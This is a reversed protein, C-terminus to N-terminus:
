AIKYDRSLHGHQQLGIQGLLYYHLLSIITVAVDVRSQEGFSASYWLLLAGTTSYHSMVAAEMETVCDSGSVTSDIRLVTATM